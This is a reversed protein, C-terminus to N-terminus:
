LTKTNIQVFVDSVDFARQYKRNVSEMFNDVQNLINGRQISENRQQRIKYAETMADNLQKNTFGCDDILISKRDNYSMRLHRRSKKRTGKRVREYDNLDMVIENIPSQTPDLMVAPGSVTNPHDGLTIKFEKVDVSSFSVSRTLPVTASATENNVEPTVAVSTSSKSSSGLSKNKSEKTMSEKNANEIKEIIDEEEDDDDPNYVYRSRNPYRANSANSTAANAAERLMVYPQEVKMSSKKLISKPAKPKSNTSFVDTVIDSCSLPGCSNDIGCSTFKLLSDLISNEEQDDVEADDQDEIDSNSIKPVKVTDSSIITIPIQQESSITTPVDSIQRNFSGDHVIEVDDCDKEVFLRICDLISVNNSKTLKDDNVDIDKTPEVAIDDMDPNEDLLPPM